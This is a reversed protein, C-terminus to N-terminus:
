VQINGERAEFAAIRAAEAELPALKNRALMRTGASVDIKQVVARQAAIEKELEPKRAVVDEKKGPYDLALFTSGGSAVMAKIAPRIYKTQKELVTIRKQMSEVLQVLSKVRADAAEMQAKAAAEAADARAKELACSKELEIIRADDAQRATASSRQVAAISQLARAFVTQSRQEAEIISQGLPLPYAPAAGAPAQLSLLDTRSAM